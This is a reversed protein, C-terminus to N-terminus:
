TFKQVLAGILLVLAVVAFLLRYRNRLERVRSSKLGSRYVDVAWYAYIGFLIATYASVSPLIGVSALWVLLGFSFGFLGFSLWYTNAQGFQVANTRIGALRDDAYDQVEQVLHGATILVGFYSGLVIASTDISAFAASGLLYTLVTGAFHLISSIVPMGKAKLGAAPFSYAIGLLIMTGAIPVLSVSVIAVIVLGLVALGLALYFIERSAIGLEILSRSRKDQNQYDLAMDAWDNFAFIHAMILFSGATLLIARVAVSPDMNPMHLAMGIITPAQFIIADRVRIRSVIRGVNSQARPASM